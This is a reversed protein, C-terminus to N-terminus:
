LEKFKGKDFDAIANEAVQDLKGSRVDNEFQKDWVKADFGDFWKRFQELENSPLESVAKEIEHVNTM